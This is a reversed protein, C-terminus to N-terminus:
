ETGKTLEEDTLLEPSLHFTYEVWALRLSAATLIVGSAIWFWRPLLSYEGFPFFIDKILFASM